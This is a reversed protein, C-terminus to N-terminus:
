ARLDMKRDPAEATRYAKEEGGALFTVRWLGLSEDVSQGGL